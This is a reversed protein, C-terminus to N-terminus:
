FHANKYLRAKTEVKKLIPIIIEMDRVVMAPNCSITSAYSHAVGDRLKKLNGLSSKLRALDSVGIEDEIFELGHAGYAYLIGEALHKDYSHGWIGSKKTNLRDKIDLNHLRSISIDMLAKIGDEIWGSAAIVAMNSYTKLLKANRSTTQASAKQYESELLTLAVIIETKAFASGQAM